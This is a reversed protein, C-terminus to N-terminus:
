PQQAPVRAPSTVRRWLAVATLGARPFRAVGPLPSNRPKKTPHVVTTSLSKEHTWGWTATHFSPRVAISSRATMHEGIRGQSRSRRRCSSPHAVEPLGPGTEAFAEQPGFSGPALAGCRKRSSPRTVRIRNIAAILFRGLPQLVSQRGSSCPLRSPLRSKVNAIEGAPPRSHLTGVWALRAASGDHHEHNSPRPPM